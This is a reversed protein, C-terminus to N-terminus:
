GSAHASVIGGHSEGRRSQCRKEEARERSRYTGHRRSREV